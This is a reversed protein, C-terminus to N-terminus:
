WVDRQGRMSIFINEPSRGAQLAAPCHSKLSALFESNDVRMFPNYTREEGMTSLCLEAQGQTDSLKKQAAQNGPELHLAFELNRVSYDHGPYVITEDPLEALTNQFTRYLVNADGGFRCNGAGALFITDGSFLHGETYLSIHGPTHGPTFLVKLRTEGVELEDGPNLVCDIEGIWGRDGLHAYLPAQTESQIRGNGRTHDPHGHTNVLYRLQIGEEELVQLASEADVPDILLGDSGDEAFLLYFYNDTVQSAITRINL